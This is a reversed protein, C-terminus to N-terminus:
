DPLCIDDRDTSGTLADACTFGQDCDNNDICRQYCIRNDVPDGTLNYCVADGFCDSDDQCYLSCMLGQGQIWDIEFCADAEPVCDDHSDCASYLPVDSCASLVLAALVAGCHFSPLRLLRPM